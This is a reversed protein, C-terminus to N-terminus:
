SGAQLESTIKLLNYRGQPRCNPLIALGEPRFADKSSPKDTLLNVGNRRVEAVVLLDPDRGDEQDILVLVLDARRGGGLCQTPGALRPKVEDLDGGGRAR